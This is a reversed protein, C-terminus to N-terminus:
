GQELPVLPPEVVVEQRVGRPERVPQATRRWRTSLIPEPMEELLRERILYTHAPPVPKEIDETPEALHKTFSLVDEAPMTMWRSGRVRWALIGDDLERLWKIHLLYDRNITPVGPLFSLIFYLIIVIFM